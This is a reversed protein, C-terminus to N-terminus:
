FSFERVLENRSSTKLFVWRVARGNEESENCLSIQSSEELIDWSFVKKKGKKVLNLPIVRFQVSGLLLTRRFDWLSMSKRMKIESLSSFFDGYVVPSFSPWRWRARTTYSLLAWTPSRGLLLLPLQKPQQGPGTRVTLDSVEHIIFLAWKWPLKRGNRNNSEKKLGAM